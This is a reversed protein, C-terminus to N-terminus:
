TRPRQSSIERNWDFKKDFISRKLDWSKKNAVYMWFESTLKAEFSKLRNRVTRLKRAKSNKLRAVLIPKM